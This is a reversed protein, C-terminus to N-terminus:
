DSRKRGSARTTPSRAAIPRRDARDAAALEVRDILWPHVTQRPPIKRSNPLGHATNAMASAAPLGQDEALKMAREFAPRLPWLTWRACNRPLGGSPSPLLRRPGALRSGARRLSGIPSPPRSTSRWNTRAPECAIFTLTRRHHRSAGPAGSPDRAAARRGDVTGYPLAMPRFFVRPTRHRYRSEAGVPRSQRAVGRWPLLRARDRHRLAHILASLRTSSLRSGAPM